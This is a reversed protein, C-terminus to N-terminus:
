MEEDLDFVRHQCYSCHAAKAGCDWDDTFFYGDEWLEAKCHPCTALPLDSPQFSPAAADFAEESSYQVAGDCRSCWAGGREDFYYDNDYEVLDLDCRDCYLDTFSQLQERPEGDQEDTEMEVEVEIEEHGDTVDVDTFDIAMVTAVISDEVAGDAAEDAAAGAAGGGAAGGAAGGEPTPPILTEESASLAAHRGSAWHM